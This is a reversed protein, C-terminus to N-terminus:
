QMFFSLGNHYLVARVLTNLKFDDSQFDDLLIGKNREYPIKIKIYPKRLKNNYRIFPRYYDDIIDLPIQEGFWTKSNHFATSMNIDDLDAFFEYLDKDDSDLELELYCRNDSITIPLMCKLYSTTIKIKQNNYLVEGIYQGKNKKPTNYTIKDLDIIKYDLCSM